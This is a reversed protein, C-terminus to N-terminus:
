LSAELSIVSLSLPRITGEPDVGPFNGAGLIMLHDPVDNFVHVARSYAIPQPVDMMDWEGPDGLHRNIFVPQHDADSVIITGNPGGVSSWTVYPSSSPQVGERSLIPTGQVSDFELPSKAIRYYVPYEAGTINASSPFEHVLIWSDIPPLYTIVTMGPRVSYNGYAVDNVVPGWHKMDKTTQHALKQGHLPDRQDSYFCVLEHDYVMLYPEWVPHAGNTINPASGEAIRSVFEWTRARDRSAYLDIRTGNGSWSNGSALITGTEFDGLPETLEALAPQAQMGWGNVQDTINSIWNWTAGGDESEFVPFFAPSYGSLTSTVLLKGDALEVFRPYLVGESKSPQYIVNNSFLGSPSPPHTTTSVALTATLLIRFIHYGM